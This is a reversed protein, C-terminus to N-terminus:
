SGPDGPSPPTKKAAYRKAAYRELADVILGMNAEYFGASNVNGAEILFLGYATRAVDLVFADAPGWLDVTEQAFAVVDDDVQARQHSRGNLKYLSGTVVRGDVVWLRYEQSINTAQATMVPTDGDLIYGDRRGEDVVEHRWARYEDYSVVRGNFAKSDHIPRIFFLGEWKPPPPTVNAFSSFRADSNLMRGPWHIMEMRYDFYDNLFSGPWWGRERAIRAFKLAGMVITPEGPDVEVEPRLRMTFPVIDHVSHPLGLRELADLLRVFGKEQFCNTQILWRM